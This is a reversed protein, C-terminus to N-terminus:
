LKAFIQKLRAENEHHRKKDENKIPLCTPTTQTRMQFGFVDDNQFVFTKGIIKFLFESVFHRKIFVTKSMMKSQTKLVWFHNEQTEFTSQGSEFGKPGKPTSPIPESGHCHNHVMMQGHGM